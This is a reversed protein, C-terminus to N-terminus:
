YGHPYPNLGQCQDTRQPDPTAMLKPTPGLLPESGTNSHSHHLGAATTVIPGRAQSSGYAVPAARFLSVFIGFHM